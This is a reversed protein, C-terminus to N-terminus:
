DRSVGVSRLVIDLVWTAISMVIAGVLAAWFGDISLGLNFIGSVWDVILFLVANIVLAFLGFTIITVPAGLIRLVPGLTANVLVFVVAVWIFAWTDDAPVITVGSVIRTVFFLAIATVIVNLIFRLM